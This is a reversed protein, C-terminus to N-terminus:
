LPLKDSDFLIITVSKSLANGPLPENFAKWCARWAVVRHFHKRQTRARVTAICRIRLPKVCYHTPIAHCTNETKRPSTVCCHTATVHRTEQSPHGHQPYIVLNGSYSLTCSATPSLWSFNMTSTLRHLSLTHNSSKNVTFTNYIRQLPIPYHHSTSISQRTLLSCYLNTCHLISVLSNSNSFKTSMGLHSFFFHCSSKM